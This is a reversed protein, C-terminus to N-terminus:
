PRNKKDLICFRLLASQDEKRAFGIGIRTTAHFDYKKGDDLIKIQPNDLISQGNLSKTINLFKSTKAPGNADKTARIFVAQPQGVKCSVINLMLHMGYVVYVFITGGQQWMPETRPTRKGGFTHCASDTEGLYAETETIQTRAIKGGINTEIWKGLLKKALTITDTTFFDLDNIVKM